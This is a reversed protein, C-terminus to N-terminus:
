NYGGTVMFRGNNMPFLGHGDTIMDLYWRVQGSSDFAFPTKYAGGAVITLGKLRDGTSSVQVADQLHEPLPDTEIMLTKTDVLKGHVIEELIIENERDAYLGTIPLEHNT